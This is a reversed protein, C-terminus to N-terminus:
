KSGQILKSLASLDYSLGIQGRIDNADLLDTKNSWKIAVPLAFGQALNFVLKGQVVGLWGSTGLLVQADSPLTINTGPALNGATITLVTPDSQYQGYGALSVTARPASVTGGVPKDFEGAVQVDRLRGYTATAPLTAYWEVGGNATLQAGSLFTRSGDSQGTKPDKKGGQFALAANLKFGHIAPQSVPTSYSYSMSALPKGRAETIVEQSTTRYTLVAANLAVLNKADDTTSVVYASVAKWYPAFAAVLAAFDNKDEAQKGAAHWQQQTDLL